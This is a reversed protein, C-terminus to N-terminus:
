RAGQVLRDAFAELDARRVLRRRGIKLSPVDGSAIHEYITSRGIRLSDAAEEISLLVSPTSEQYVAM